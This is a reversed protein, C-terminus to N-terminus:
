NREGTLYFLHGKYGMNEAAKFDFQDPSCIYILPKPTDDMSQISVQSVKPDSIYREFAKFMQYVCM